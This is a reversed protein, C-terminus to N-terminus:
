DILYWDGQAIKTLEERSIEYHEPDCSAMGRLMNNSDIIYYDFSGNTVSTTHGEMMAAIADTMDFYRESM